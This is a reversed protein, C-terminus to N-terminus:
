GLEALERRFRELKEREGDVVAPPAKAVFQENALKKEVRAIEGELRERQAGRRREAEAADHM